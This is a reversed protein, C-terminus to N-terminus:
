AAHPEADESARLRKTEADAWKEFRSFGWAVLAVGIATFALISWGASDHASEVAAAGKANATFSLYLSRILNGFIALAVGCLLLAGQLGKGRLTLYGIFLTAMVTSQLSRIGSCAEDVGVMGNPLQIISGVREAPIGMVNLVEVNVAAVKNQLGVVVPDYILSPLPM